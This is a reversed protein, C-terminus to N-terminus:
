SRVVFNMLTACVQLPIDTPKVWFNSVVRQLWSRFVALSKLLINEFQELALGSISFTVKFAGGHIKILEYILENTPLYSKEAIRRVIYRDQYEDYYNSDVGIDFFRFTRLRYPQHVQFYLCISRM